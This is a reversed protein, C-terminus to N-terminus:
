SIGLIKHIQLSVRWQPHSLAYRLTASTTDTTLLFAEDERDQSAANKGGDALCIEGPDCPQLFHYFAPFGAWKSPDNFGTYVLKLEDAKQLVVHGRPGIFDEKPSLTIWDIDDPLKRTGNTEIHIKYGAEKFASVLAEDVQLSPEGGTICVRNCDASQERLAAIIESTTMEHYSSFDTDCFPCRLNCSSLRLFVM